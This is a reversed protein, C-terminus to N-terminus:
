YVIAMPVERNLPTESTYTVSRVNYGCKDVRIDEGYSVMVGCSGMGELPEGM